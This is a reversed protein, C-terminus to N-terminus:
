RYYTLMYNHVLTFFRNISQTIQRKIKNCASILLKVVINYLSYIRNCQTHHQVLGQGEDNKSCQM